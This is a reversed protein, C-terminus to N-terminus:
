RKVEEHTNINFYRVVGDIKVLDVDGSMGVWGYYRCRINNHLIHSLAWSKGQEYGKYLKM